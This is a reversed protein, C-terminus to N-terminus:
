RIFQIPIGVDIGRWAADATIAPLNRARALALCARDGLSLGKSRTREVLAGTDEALSREFEVVQLDLLQLIEAAGERSAGRRVLVGVTEALNVASLLADAVKDDLSESGPERNLCALLASTDLVFSNM